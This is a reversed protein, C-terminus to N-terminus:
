AVQATPEADDDRNINESAIVSRHVLRKGDIRMEMINNAQFNNVIPKKVELRNGNSLVLYIVSSGESRIKLFDKKLVERKIGKIEKGDKDHFISIGKRYNANLYSVRIYKLEKDAGKPTHLIVTKSDDWWRGWPLKHTLKKNGNEDTEIDDVSVLDGASNIRQIDVIKVSGEVDDIKAGMEKLMRNSVTKGFIYGFSAFRKATKLIETNKCGFIEAFGTGKEYVPQEDSDLTTGRSKKLPNPDTITTLTFQSYGKYDKVKRALDEGDNFIVTEPNKKNKDAM